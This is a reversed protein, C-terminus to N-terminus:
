PCSNKRLRSATAGGPVGPQSVWSDARGAMRVPAASDAIKIIYQVIGRSGLSIWREAEQGPFRGVLWRAEQVPNEGPAVLFKGPRLM